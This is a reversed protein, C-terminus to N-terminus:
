SQAKWTKIEKEGKDSAGFTSYFKKKKTKVSGRFSAKCKQALLVKNVLTHISNIILVICFLKRAEIYKQIKSV